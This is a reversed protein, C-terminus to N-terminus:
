KGGQRQGVVGLDGNYLDWAVRGKDKKGMTIVDIERSPQLEKFLFWLNTPRAEGKGLDGLDCVHFSCPFVVFLFFVL